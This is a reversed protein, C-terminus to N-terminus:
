RGVPVGRPPHSLLEAIGRELRMWVIGDGPWPRDTTLSEVVDVTRAPYATSFTGSYQRAVERTAETSRVILLRSLSRRGGTVDEFARAKEAIWRLQQEIRRFESQAEGIVTTPGIRDTLVLDAVGRVPKPVVVELRSVWRAALVRLLAELMPAQFRDHLRPGAGAFLRLGLDAGLAVSITTLAEISAQVQAKEIRAIHSPDLGTVAGLERLTVGADLRLARIDDGLRLSSHRLRRGAERTIATKSIM